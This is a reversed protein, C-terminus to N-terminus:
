GTNVTGMERDEEAGTATQAPHKGSAPWESAPPERSPTQPRACMLRSFLPPRTHLRGRGSVYSSTQKHKKALVSENIRDELELSSLVIKLEFTAPSRIINLLHGGNFFVVVVLKYFFM